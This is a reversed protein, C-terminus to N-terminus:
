KKEIDVTFTNEAAKGKTPTGIVKIDHKGLAATDSARITVKVDKDGHKITPSAPDFTVGEPAGEFKLAVDGGDFNKGRDIGITFEKFAGQKLNTTGHPPTLTFTNETTGVVPAKQSANTAANPGGAHKESTGSAGGTCGVLGVLALMVLGTCLTKM